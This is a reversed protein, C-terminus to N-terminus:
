YRRLLADVIEAMRQDIEWQQARHDNVMAAFAVVRGSSTHLIGALTNVGSIHGSKVRAEGRIPAQRFAAPNWGDLGSLKLSSLMEPGVHFDRYVYRLLAVVQAPSFRDLRSLGSGDAQVYSNIPIGLRQELVRAMVALGKTATGPSGYEVAGLTKLLSEAMVNNSYKNIDMVLRGLPESEIDYLPVLGPPLSGRGLEAGIVSPAPIREQEEASPRRVIGTVQVGAKGLLDRLREGFHVAPDAVSEWGSKGRMAAYNAMLASVPAHYAERTQAGGPWGDGYRQDDFYRDDVVIDGAVQSIGEDRISAATVWLREEVVDPAGRGLVWLDGEIRTALRQGRYAIPTKWTFHPGLVELGTMTTFLKNVSAPAFLHSASLSALVEGDDLAVVLLGVQAGRLSAHGLLSRVAPHPSVDPYESAIPGPADDLHQQAQAAPATFCLPALLVIGARARLQSRM